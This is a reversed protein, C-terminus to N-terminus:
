NPADGSTEPKSGLVGSPRPPDAGLEKLLRRSPEHGKEAAEALLKGAAIADKPVGRGEIHRVALDYRADISGKSIREKLFDVVRADIVAPDEKPRAREAAVVARQTAVYRARAAAEAQMM